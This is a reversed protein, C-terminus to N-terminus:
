SFVQPFGFNEAFAAEDMGGLEASWVAPLKLKKWASRTRKSYMDERGLEDISITPHYFQNSAVWDAMVLLGSLLVRQPGSLEPIISADQIGSVELAYQLFADWSEAWLTADNDKGRFNVLHGDFTSESM